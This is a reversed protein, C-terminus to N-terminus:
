IKAGRTNDPSKLWWRIGRGAFTEDNFRPIIHLHAIPVHQGGAPLVNWGDPQLEQMLLDKAQQLLVFSAQWEETTLDFVTARVTKPLIVGGIETEHELYFCLKHELRITGRMLRSGYILGNSEPHELYQQYELQKTELITM